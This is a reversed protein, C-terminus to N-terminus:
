PSGKSNKRLMLGIKKNLNILGQLRKESISKWTKMEHKVLKIEKYIGCSM